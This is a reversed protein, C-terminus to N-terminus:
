DYREGKIIQKAVERDNHWVIRDKYVQEEEPGKGALLVTDGERAMSIAKRIAQVRDLIIEYNDRKWPVIGKEADRATDMPDESRPNDTSIITYDSFKSVVEAMLPRKTKDREGGCGFITILRGPTHPRLTSLIHYLGHYNHAFDVVLNFKQGYNLVEYRGQVGKLSKIGKDIAEKSIGLSLALSVAGLINYVNYIGGLLTEIDIVHEGEKFISFKVGGLFYRIYKAYFTAPSFLGFTVKKASTRDMIYPSNLDDANLSAFADESLSEFLLTKAKLYNEFNKHLEFHENAINTFIAGLFPIGWVRYMSLAHSSVEMVVYEVGKEIAKSFVQNLELSELTTHHTYSIEDGVRNYITGLLATKKGYARLISDMIFTTTTKGNTGTVGIIKLKKAPYNYFKASVESLTRRANRVKLYMDPPLYDVDKEGVVFVAGNKVADKIFDHGDLFTGSLAFFIYGERVKRSDYSIGSIEIDRHCSKVKQSLGTVVDLLEQLRM